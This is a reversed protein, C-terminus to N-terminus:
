KEEEKPPALMRPLFMMMVFMMGMVVLMTIMETFGPFLAEIIWLPLIAIIPVLLMGGVIGIIWPWWAPSSLYSVWVVPEGDPDLTLFQPHEPWPLLGATNRLEAEARAIDEEMAQYREELVLGVLIRTRPRATSELAVVDSDTSVPVQAVAGLGPPLRFAM